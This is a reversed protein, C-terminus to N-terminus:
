RRGLAEEPSFGLLRVGMRFCAFIVARSSALAFIRPHIAGRAARAPVGSALRQPPLCRCFRFFHGQTSCWPSQRHLPPCKLFYFKTSLFSPHFSILCAPPPPTFLKSHLSTSLFIVTLCKLKNPLTSFSSNGQAFTLQIFNTVAPTPAYSISINACLSPFSLNRCERM